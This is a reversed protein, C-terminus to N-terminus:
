GLSLNYLQLLVQFTLNVNISYCLKITIYQLSYDNENLLKLHSFERIHIYM